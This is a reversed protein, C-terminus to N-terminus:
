AAAAAAAALAVTLIMNIFAQKLMYSLLYSGQLVVHV